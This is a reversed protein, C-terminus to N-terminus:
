PPSYTGGESIPCDPRDELPQEMAWLSGRSKNWKGAVGMANQNYFNIKGKENSIYRVKLFTYGASM